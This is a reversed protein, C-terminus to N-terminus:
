NTPRTLQMIAARLRIPILPKHLVWLRLAPDYGQPHATNATILIGGTVSQISVSANSYDQQFHLPWHM